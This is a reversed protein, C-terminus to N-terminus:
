RILMVTGVTVANTDLSVTQSAVVTGNRRWVVSEPLVNINILIESGVCHNGTISTPPTNSCQAQTHSYFLLVFIAFVAPYKLTM